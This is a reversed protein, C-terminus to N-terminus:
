KQSLYNHWNLFSSFTSSSQSITGPVRTCYGILVGRSSLLINRLFLPFHFNLNSLSLSVHVGFMGAVADKGYKASHGKFFFRAGVLKKNCDSASFGPGTECEGRWTAPVPPLNRDSFSRREPWVGTDLVGVVVDSGYDSLSWLGLQTRLGLFQPSRTTHLHRVRDEYVALVSPNQRLSNAQTSDMSASFGHFVTDYVHLPAIPQSSEDYLSLSAYWHSHSAFTAPKALPNVRVIYTKRQTQALSHTLTISLALFSLFLSIPPAM